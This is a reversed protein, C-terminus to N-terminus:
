LYFWHFVGVLSLLHGVVLVVSVLLPPGTDLSPYGDWWQRSPRHFQYLRYLINLQKISFIVAQDQEPKKEWIPLLNNVYLETIVNLVMVKNWVVALSKGFNLQLPPNCSQQPLHHHKLNTWHYTQWILLFKPWSWNKIHM